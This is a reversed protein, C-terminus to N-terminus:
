LPTVDFAMTLRHGPDSFPRTGHWFCSPFLVLTGREPKVMHEATLAPTTHCGPRGFQLWGERAEGDDVAAPLDLYFASSIWGRPHVHDAHFGDSRLRVSWGGAFDFGKSRRARIADDGAGLDEVYRAVAKRASAFFAKVLPDESRDLSPVQTGGRLSQQLPHTKLDHLELLRARLAELFSELDSWGDPTELRYPRVLQDYRRYPALRPDETLRWATNRLALAYQDEPTAAVLREATEAAAHAHGAALQAECLVAHVEPAAPALRLATEAHILMRAVDGVVGAARAAALKLLVDNPSATLANELTADAAAHDGAFTQVTSKILRLGPDEPHQRIAAELVSLADDQRGSRMWRLQALDLHAAAYNPRRAVATLFAKEADDYRRLGQLAKGLVLWVEPADLGLGLTRRAAVEAEADLKLDGLTAALNYWAFRDSPARAVARRNFTVADDTRGLAKLAAAHAMLLSPTAAGAQAASQTLSSAEAARGHDILTWAKQTLSDTM